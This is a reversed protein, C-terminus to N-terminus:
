LSPLKGEPDFLNKIRTQLPSPTESTRAQPNKEQLARSYIVGSAARAVFETDGLTKLTTILESPATSETHHTESRFTGDYSLTTETELGM